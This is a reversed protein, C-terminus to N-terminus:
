PERDASPNAWPRTNHLSPRDFQVVTVRASKNGPGPIPTSFSNQYNRTGNTDDPVWSIENKGPDTLQTDPGAPSVGRSPIHSLKRWWPQWHSLHADSDVKDSSAGLDACLLLFPPVSPM